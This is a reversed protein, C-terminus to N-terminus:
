RASLDRFSALRVGDAALAARVRTDCLAAIEGEREDAYTSDRRLGDDSYGPHCM